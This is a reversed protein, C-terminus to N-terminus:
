RAAGAGLARRARAKYLGFGPPDAALLRRYDDHVFDGRVADRYGFAVVLVVAGAALVARYRGAM